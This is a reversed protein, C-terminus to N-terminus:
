LMVKKKHQLNYSVLTPIINKIYVGTKLPLFQLDKKTVRIMDIEMNGLM